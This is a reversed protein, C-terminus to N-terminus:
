ERTWKDASEEAAKKALAIRIERAREEAARSAELLRRREAGSIASLRDTAQQETEGAPRYGLRALTLRALEERRDPDSVFRAAPAGAALEAVMDHLVALLAPAAVARSLFGDDALLWATVAVLSLRNRDAKATNGHFRQLEEQSPRAGHLRLVDNVVAAVVISGRADSRTTGIQPEDLFDPPTDVLRRLLSELSPGPEKM